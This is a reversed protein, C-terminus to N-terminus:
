VHEQRAGRDAIVLGIGLAALGVAAVAGAHATMLVGGLTFGWVMRSAGASRLTMATGAIAAVLALSAIAWIPSFDATFHNTVLYEATSAAGEHAPGAISNAHRITLASAIGTVSDFAAFFVLYVPIAVRTVTAAITTRGRVTIWLAAGLGLSLVLQAVHVGLWLDAKDHLHGYVTGGDGMPHILAVVIWALPVGIFLAPRWMPRRAARSGGFTTTTIAPASTSM